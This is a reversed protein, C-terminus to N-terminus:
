FHSWIRDYNQCLTYKDSERQPLIWWPERAMSRCNLFSITWYSDTFFRLNWWCSCRKYSGISLKVSAQSLWTVPALSSSLSGHETVKRTGSEGLSPALALKHNYPSCSLLVWFILSGWYKISNNTSRRAEDLPYFSPPFFFPLSISSLSLSPPCLLFM